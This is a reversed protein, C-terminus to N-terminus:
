QPFWIDGDYDAWTDDSTNWTPDTVLPSASATIPGEVEIQILDVKPSSYTPNTQKITRKM